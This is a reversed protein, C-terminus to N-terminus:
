LCKRWTWRPAAERVDFVAMGAARAAEVGDDTDEFALCEQPSLGLRQAALAFIDPYPKGRAADEGTLVVDFYSEWALRRLFIQIGGRSGSSAIALPLRGVFAELLLAAPLPELPGTEALDALVEVKRRHIEEVSVSAVQKGLLKPITERYPGGVCSLFHEETLELGLQRFVDHYARYHLPMTDVLTGDFDFVAGSYRGSCM